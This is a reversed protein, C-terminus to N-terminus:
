PAQENGNDAEGTPQKLQQVPVTVIFATGQGPTSKATITGGHREANKRCIALGIGSGEYEYRGHLRQFTAFIRDLYKEDFGIGNDEVVIQCSGNGTSSRQGDLPHSHVKVVPPEGKRHFKLANSILNQLLQRMQGPDADITPLEGLEVRGGTQEIRVELDSLVEQTVEALDVPVFSQTKNTVRSYALLDDILSQMRAAANHMRELYDRGQDGLADSYKTKLRDAFAQIKRMPEQLDHSAVNTFQTLEANSRTLKANSKELNEQSARLEEFLQANEIAIAAGNGLQQLLDVEEQSFERPQYTMARLVGVVEGGKLFLPVGLYGRVGIRLTTEGGPIDTGRTIDPISLAKRNKIIWSSRGRTTRTAGARVRKAEIGSVGLLRWVGKENVRVDCTDVKVIDRVKDTLKQLLSDLNLSTIDQSLEKLLAQIEERRQSQEYLQSNHIAIAAQSALMTLFESEEKSFQHEERTMFTIVGLVEGKVVLPLGLYSVLGHKRFFNSDLIRPDTQVNSVLVPAKEEMAAKLLPPTERLERRVWEEKDLNGCAIRELQRSERNFLWVETALNPLLSGIKDILIDLVGGLDLSSTIALDIERLAAVQELNHEMEALLRAREEEAQKREALEEQATQYLRRSETLLQELNAKKAELERTREVLEERLQHREIAYRISRVLLSGDVKGKVLYDQAGQKVARTAANDNDLETLLIIPIGPAQANVREFTALGYSDRLALDLLVVDVETEALCALGTSLQKVCELDFTEVGNQGLMNRILETDDENDEILLIRM